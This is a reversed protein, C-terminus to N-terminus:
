TSRPMNPLHQELTWQLIGRFFMEGAVPSFILAPLTFMLHLTLLPMGSTDTVGRYDNAISVFWNDADRGKQM